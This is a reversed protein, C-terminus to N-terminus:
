PMDASSSLIFFGSWSIATSTALNEFLKASSYLLRAFGKNSITHRREVARGKPM